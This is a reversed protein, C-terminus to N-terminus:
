SGAAWTLTNMGFNQVVKTDDQSSDVINEMSGAIIGQRNGSAHGTDSPSTNPRGDSVPNPFSPAAVPGTSPGAEITKIDSIWQRLEGCIAIFGPDDTGAFKPM